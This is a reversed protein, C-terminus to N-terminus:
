VPSWSRRSKKGKKGGKTIKFLILFDEKSEDNIIDRVFKMDYGIIRSCKEDIVLSEVGLKEAKEDLDFSDYLSVVKERRNKSFEHIEYFLRICSPMRRLDQLFNKLKLSKGVRMKFSKSSMLEDSLSEWEKAVKYVEEKSFSLSSNVKSVATIKPKVLLNKESLWKMVYLSVKVNRDINKLGKFGMSNLFYSLDTLFRKRKWNGACKPICNKTIEFGNCLFDSNEVFRIGSKDLIKEFLPYYDKLLSKMYLKYEVMSKCLSGKGLILLRMPDGLDYISIRKGSRIISVAESVSLSHAIGQDIRDLSCVGVNCYKEFIYFYMMLSDAQKTTLGIYEESTEAKHRYDTLRIKFNYKNRPKKKLLNEEIHDANIEVQTCYVNLTGSIDGWKTSTKPILKTADVNIKVPGKASGIKMETASELREGISPEYGFRLRWSLYDENYYLENSGTENFIFLRKCDAITAGPVFPNCFVDREGRIERNRMTNMFLRDGGFSKYNNLVERYADQADNLIGEVEGIEFDGFKLHKVVFYPDDSYDRDSPLLGANYSTNGKTASNPSLVVEM